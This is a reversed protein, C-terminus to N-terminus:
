WKEGVIKSFLITLCAGALDSRERQERTPREPLILDQYRPFSNFVTAENRMLCCAAAFAWKVDPFDSLYEYERKKAFHAGEIFTKPSFKCRDYVFASGRFYQFDVDKPTSGFRACIARWEELAGCFQLGQLYLEAARLVVANKEKLGAISSVSWERLEKEQFLLTRDILADLNSESRIPTCSAFKKKEDVNVSEPSFSDATNSHLVLGPSLSNGAVVRILYEGYRRSGAVDIFEYYEGASVYRRFLLNLKPTAGYVLEFGCSTLSEMFKNEAFRNM